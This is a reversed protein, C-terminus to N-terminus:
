DVCTYGDQFLKRRLYDVDGSIKAEVFARYPDAFELHTESWNTFRKTETDFTVENYTGDKRCYGCYKVKIIM